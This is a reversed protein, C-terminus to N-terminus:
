LQEDPFTYSTPCIISLSASYHKFVYHGASPAAALTVAEGALTEIAGPCDEVPDVLMQALDLIYEWTNISNGHLFNLPITAFIDGTATLAHLSIVDAGWYHSSLNYLDAM